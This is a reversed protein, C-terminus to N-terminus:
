STSHEYDTVSTIEPRPLQLGSIHINHELSTFTTAYFHAKQHRFPHWCFVFVNETISIHADYKPLLFTVWILNKNEM